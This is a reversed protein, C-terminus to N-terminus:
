RQEEPHYFITYGVEEQLIEDIKERALPPIPWGQKQWNCLTQASIYCETLIRRRIHASSAFVDKLRENM